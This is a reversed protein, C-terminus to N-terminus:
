SPTEKATTTIWAKASGRRARAERQPRGDVLAGRPRSAAQLSGALWRLADRGDIRASRVAWMSGAPIGVLVFANWTGLHAWVPRTLFLVALLGIGVVLQAVSLQWPLTWGGIKGLVLPFRRAHTYTTCLVPSASDHEPM